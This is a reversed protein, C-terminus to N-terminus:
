EADSIYNSGDDKKDGTQINVLGVISDRVITSDDPKLPNWPETINYHSQIIHGWEKSPAEHIPIYECSRGYINGCANTSWQPVKNNFMLECVIKFTEINRVKYEELQEDTKDIPTAKFRPGIQHTIRNKSPSQKSIHYVWASQCKRGQEFYAPYQRRMLSNLAVIYGTIADNPNYKRGEDGRFYAHTKHDVPGIKFGNDIVLDIRGTLYCEVTWDGDPTILYFYGLPVEKKFGFAVEADVVRLRLDMYFAYYQTLLSLGGDRGGVKDFQPEKDKYWNINLREWEKAGVQLFENIDPPKGDNRKLNLYFYELAFHMWAGFILNWAGHGKPRINLIHEKVFKMECTRLTSLMHHDCYMEIVRDEPRIKIWHYKEAAQQPNM